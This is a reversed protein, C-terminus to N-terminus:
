NHPCHMDRMRVADAFAMTAYIDIAKYADVRKIWAKILPNFTRAMQKNYIPDRVRATQGNHLVEYYASHFLFKANETYCVQAPSVNRNLLLTCASVCEGDIIIRKNPHAKLYQISELMGDVVGGAGYKIVIQDYDVLIKKLNGDTRGSVVVGDWGASASGTMLLLVVLAVIFKM